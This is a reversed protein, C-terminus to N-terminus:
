IKIWLWRSHYGFKRVVINSQNLIIQYIYANSKKGVVISSIVNGCRDMKLDRLKSFM